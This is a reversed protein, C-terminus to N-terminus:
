RIRERESLNRERLRSYDLKDLDHCEEQCERSPNKTPNRRQPM